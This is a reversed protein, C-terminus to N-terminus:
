LSPSKDLSVTQAGRSNQQDAFPGRSHKEGRAVRNSLFDPKARPASIFFILSFDHADNTVYAM